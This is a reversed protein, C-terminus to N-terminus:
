GAKGEEAILQDVVQFIAAPSGAMSGNTVYKGNIVVMPVGDVRYRQVLQQSKRLNTEVEFSNYAQEFATQDVGHKAFFEALQEKNQIRQKDVHIANFLPGHIKELVGLKEAVYFARAGIEWSSGLIAPLRVFEVNEPKNKLWQEAAPELSFCHPCGYWFIELVEIKDSSATPVPTDLRRYHTGEQFDAALAALPLWLLVSLILKRLKM